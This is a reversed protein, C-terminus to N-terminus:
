EGNLRERDVVDAPAPALERRLEDAAAPSRGPCRGRHLQLAEADRDVRERGLLGLHSGAPLSAPRAREPGRPGTRRPIALPGARRYQVSRPAPAPDSAISGAPSPGSTEFRLCSPNPEAGSSSPGRCPRRSAGGRPRAPTFPGIACSNFGSARALERPILRRDGRFIAAATTARVGRTYTFSVASNGPPAIRPWSFLTRRTRPRTVAAGDARASRMTATRSPHGRHVRPVRDDRVAGHRDSVARDERDAAPSRQSASRPGDSSRSRPDRTSGSEDVRVRVGRM